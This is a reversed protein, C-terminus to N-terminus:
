FLGRYVNAGDKVAGDFKVGHKDFVICRNCFQEVQEPSHTVLIITKNQSHLERIKQLCKQQFGIDGVALIEDFLLVDADLHAAISFGLRVLMGSSYNRVAKYIDQGLESFEVIQDVKKRIAERGFGLISANLYINEIGDLESAFGAGLELLPVLRGSYHINGSSPKYIGSILKLLTSKGAGNRGMIGVFDGQYINLNIDNLVNVKERKGLDLSFTMLQALMTKISQPRDYWAQFNKSVHQFEITTLKHSNM